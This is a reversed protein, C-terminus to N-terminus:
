GRAAAQLDLDLTLTLNEGQSPEEGTLEELIKGRSDVLSGAAGM